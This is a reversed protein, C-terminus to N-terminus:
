NAVHQRRWARREEALEKITLVMRRRMICHPMQFAFLNLASAWM